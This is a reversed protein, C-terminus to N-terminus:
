FYDSLRSSKNGGLFRQHWLVVNALFWIRGAYYNQAKKGVGVAPVHRLLRTKRMMDRIPEPKLVGTARLNRNSLLSEALEMFERQFWDNLPAQFGVKKRHIIEMPLGKREALKKLIAKGSGKQVKFASPIRFAAEIVSRNLFPVRAEVSAAMTMRDVRLLQVGPLQGAFDYALASNVAESPGADYSRADVPMANGVKTDAYKEHGTKFYTERLAGANQLFPKKEFAYHREYGAFLEDGGEGLLLVTAYRRVAKAMLYTPLVATRAPPQELHWVLDPLHEQGDAFNLHLEAHKANLHEAMKQGYRFEDADTGFGVTLTRLDPRKQLAYAALLSSDLGGSLALAVPVDSQLTEPVSASLVGDLEALVAEQTKNRPNIKLEFHRRMHTQGTRADAELISGPPLLRIGNFLTRHGTVFLNDMLSALAGKDLEAPVGAALVAKAESAFVLKGDLFAYHVPKIGAADNALFLKKRASDWLAFAFMGEFRKVCAMGEQEYAHAIVETDTQSSFRHGKKELEARLTRYNYIEGNFVVAITQDENFMPNKGADSLDLIKLRRHGLSVQDDTFFGSQDPGRHVQADAMKRCLSADNWLFGNIGCMPKRWWPAPPPWTPRTM